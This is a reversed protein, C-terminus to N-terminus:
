GDFLNMPAAPSHPISPHFQCFTSRPELVIVFRERTDAVSALRLLLGAPFELM